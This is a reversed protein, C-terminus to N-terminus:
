GELYKVLGAYFDHRLRLHKRAGEWVLAKSEQDFAVKELIHIGEAEYRSALNVRKLLVELDADSLALSNKLLNIIARYELPIARQFVAFAGVVEQWEANSLIDSLEAVYNRTYEKPESNNVEEHSLGLVKFLKLWLERNKTQIIDKEVRYGEMEQSRRTELINLASEALPDSIESLNSIAFRLFGPDGARGGIFAEDSLFAQLLFKKLKEIKPRSTQLYVVQPWSSVEAAIFSLLWDTFQEGIFSDVAEQPTTPNM